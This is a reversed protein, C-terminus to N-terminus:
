VVVGSVVGLACGFCVLLVVVVIWGCCGCFLGFGVFCLGVVGIWCLLM